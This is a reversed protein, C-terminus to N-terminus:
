KSKQFEEVIEDQISFMEEGHELSLLHLIGHSIVYYLETEFEVNNIKASKKIYECCIVLEGLFVQEEQNNSLTEAEEYNPFSLIDTPKNEARYGANIDQIELDSVSAISIEIKKSFLFDKRSKRITSEIVDKIKDKKLRCDIKENIEVKIEM